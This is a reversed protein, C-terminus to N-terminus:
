KWGFPRAPTEQTTAKVTVKGAWQIGISDVGRPLPMHLEATRPALYNIVSM